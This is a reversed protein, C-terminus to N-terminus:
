GRFRGRGDGVLADAFPWFRVDRKRPRFPEVIQMPDGFEAAAKLWTRAVELFIERESDTKATRAWDLCEQAYKRYHDPTDM